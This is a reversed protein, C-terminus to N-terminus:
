SGIVRVTLRSGRGPTSTAIPKMATAAKASATAVPRLTASKTAATPKARAASMWRSVAEGAAVAPCRIPALM